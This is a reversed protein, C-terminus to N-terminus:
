NKYVPRVTQGLMRYYSTESIVTSDLIFGYAYTSDLCVSNLWYFGCVTNDILNEESRGGSAPLFISNGNRGTITYGNVGNQISWETTCYNLLEDFDVRSPIRWNNGFNVTAADDSSELVSLGDSYIYKTITARTYTTTIGNPTTDITITEPQYYDYNTWAYSQKKASEGWAYYDGCREPRSAGLNCTAWLNGSPLGLDVYPLVDITGSDLEITVMIAEDDVILMESEGHVVNGDINASIHVRFPVRLSVYIKKSQTYDLLYMDLHEDKRFVGYFISTDSEYIISIYADFEIVDSKSEIEGNAKKQSLQIDLSAAPNLMIPDNHCSALLFALSMFVCSLCVNRIYKIKSFM